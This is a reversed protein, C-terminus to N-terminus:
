IFIRVTARGKDQHRHGAPTGPIFFMFWILGAACACQRGCWLYFTEVPIFCLISHSRSVTMVRNKCLQKPHWMEHESFTRFLKCPVNHCKITCSWPGHIFWWCLRPATDQFHQLLLSTMAVVSCPWSMLELECIIFPHSLLPTLACLIASVPCVVEAAPAPFLFPLFLLFCCCLMLISCSTCFVDIAFGRTRSLM